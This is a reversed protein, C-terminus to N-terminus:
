PLSWLHSSNVYERRFYCKVYRNLIRGTPVTDLWRLPARIVAFSMRQFMVHSAKISAWYTIFYKATGIIVSFASLGLYIGLFYWLSHDGSFPNGSSKTGFPASSTENAINPLFIQQSGQYIHAQSFVHSGAETKYSRTWITVWYSRLLPIIMNLLFIVTLPLWVAFGGSTQFYTRYVHTKIRGTDRGEAETFKKAPEKPKTAVAGADIIATAESRRRSLILRLQNGDEQQEAADNALEEAEKIAEEKITDHELEALDGSQRLDDISGAFAIGGDDSLKVTYNAKSLVLGVHHTVLIRTRGKGLEGCLAEEVLQRGVHPDVASLIDDLVLIGARSYLSRAFATRAKQGGSLNIGQAGIDTEDGSELLEFDKKLACAAVCKEYRQQDYPLGFLINERITANEIWPVQSAYAVADDLIWNSANASADFRETTHKPMHISGGLKDIEGLLAALMLSKGTGTKGSIVSLEGRPFEVNVDRLVFRAADDDAADAPWAISANDFMIKDSRVHVEEIEPLTLYKEIRTISVWADVADTTLEPIVSLTMEINGLIAIATFAISADLSGHKLAYTTLVASALLIPNVVWIGILFTDWTMTSWLVTLEEKRKQSIRDQWQNELASFKIQRIGQLAETVVAMKVDRLKMLSGQLGNYKTSFWVNLPLTCFFAIIGALLPLWGVLKYLFTFSVILKVLTGPFIWVYSTFDAVRQTDVGVLNVTQQRGKQADEAEDEDADKKEKDVVTDEGKLGAEINMVLEDPQKKANKIGKVDKRRTSKIFIISSLLNKVPLSVEAVLIWFLYCEVLSSASMSFFLGVVWLWASSDIRDGLDRKELLNLLNFM